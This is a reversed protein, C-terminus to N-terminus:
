FTRRVMIHTTVQSHKERSGVGFPNLQPDPNNNTQEGKLGVEVALDIQWPGGYSGIGATIHDEVIAPFLPTLTEDPVPSDGHNYGLRFIWGIVPEYELGVAYVWQQEWNMVIPISQTAPASANSPNSLQIDITGLASEWDIWDVDAAMRLAPSFRYSLGLGAQQPWAFGDMEADYSVKGLPGGMNLVMTGDEFDLESESLYAGGITLRGLAYQFGLRYAYGYSELGDLDMGAFTGPVTTEPFMRMETRAYGLNASVGLKLSSGKSKWALTPTLKAFMIDSFLEDSTGFPTAVNKYEAGMGGQSFLGLGFTMPLSDVPQAYTLLPLIFVEKEGGLDNGIADSHDLRPNLYSAGVGLEPGLCECLGAPNINMATANDVIALDAGGMAPSVAGHGIMNMGNTAWAQVALGLLMFTCLLTGKKKGVCCFM